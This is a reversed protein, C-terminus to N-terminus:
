RSRARDLGVVQGNVSQKLRLDLDAIVTFAASLEKRLESNAQELSACRARLMQLENTLTAVQPTKGSRSTVEADWEALLEGARYLTAQSVNAERALNTKTLKGDCLKPKGDLLRRMANRIKKHSEPVDGIQEEIM